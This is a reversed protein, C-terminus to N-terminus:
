ATQRLPESAGEINTVGAVTYSTRGQSEFYTRVAVEGLLGLCFLQMGVMVAFTSGLLLPNGTMDTGYGLKMLVTAALAVGGAAFCAGGLKGFFKMPSVLYHTLYKVTLLDLVVRLTRSIGYKSTGFQRAHHRTVVEACRAGRWHALIPIFRHMEGYLNLEDAIEKRIAKLTCGLDHVPFGTVRSILWNAIMSPLRRDLFRDQRNKRWGHVLDYGEDLKRLMMPIDTPDNQLDGDLLVIVDGTAYRMGASMAATQGFNRRFTVVKVRPDQRAVNQLEQHSGDRSGDDVFLIEYDLNLRDAVPKVAAYSRAVNEVENFIPIVVSLKQLSCHAPITDPECVSADEGAEDTGVADAAEADATTQVNSGHESAGTAWRLELQDFWKGCLGPRYILICLLYGTAGGWFTDSLFHSGAEVRQVAVLTAIFIFWGRAKPVLTSMALCFGIATAVHASPFSQSGAGGHFGPLFGLFTDAVTLDFNSNYPRTRGVFLKVIDAALGGGLVATFVRPMAWLRAPRFAFICIVILSVSFANGFPAAVELADHIPKLPRDVIMSRSLGIDVKLALLGCAILLLPPLLTRFWSSDWAASLPRWGHTIEGDLHDATSSTQGSLSNSQM